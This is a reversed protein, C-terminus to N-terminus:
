GKVGYTCSIKNGVGNMRFFVSLFFVFVTMPSMILHNRYLDTTTSLISNSRSVFGSIVQICCLSMLQRGDRRGRWFQLRLEDSTPRYNPEDRIRGDIWRDPREQTKTWNVFNLAFLLSKANTSLPRMLRPPFEPRKGSFSANESKSTQRGPAKEEFFGRRAGSLRIVGAAHYVNPIPIGAFNPGYCRRM